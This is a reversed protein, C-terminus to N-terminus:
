KPPLSRAVGVGYGVWRALDEDEGMGEPSVSIWGKMPRGSGMFQEAGPEGLLAEHQDVPVRVMLNEHQIGCCMNGDLLFGLGGFMKKETLGAEGALSGRIRDALGEDYAM